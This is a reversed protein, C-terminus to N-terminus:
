FGVGGAGAGGDEVRANHLEAWDWSAAAFRAFAVAVAFDASQGIGFGRSQLSRRDRYSTRTEDAGGARVKCHATAFARWRGASAANGGRCAVAVRPRVAGCTARGDGMGLVLCVDGRGPM